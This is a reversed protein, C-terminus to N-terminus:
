CHRAASLFYRQCASARVRSRKTATFFYLQCEFSRASELEAAGCRGDDSRNTPVAWDARAVPFACYSCPFARESCAYLHQQLVPPCAFYFGLVTDGPSPRPPRIPSCVLQSLVHSNSATYGLFYILLVGQMSALHTGSTFGGDASTPSYAFPLHLHGSPLHLHDRRQHLHRAPLVYCRSVLLGIDAVPSICGRTAM